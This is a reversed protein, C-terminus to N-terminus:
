ILEVEGPPYSYPFDDKGFQVHVTWYDQLVQFCRVVIGEEGPRDNSNSKIRVKAGPVFVADWAKQEIPM